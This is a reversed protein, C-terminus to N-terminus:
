VQLCPLRMTFRRQQRLIYPSAPLHRLGAILLLVDARSTGVLLMWLTEAVYFAPPWHGIGIMPLHLYYNYAYAVPHQSVGSRVYDYGMLGTVYNHRNM